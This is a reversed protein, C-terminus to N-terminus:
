FDLKSFSIQSNSPSFHLVFTENRTAMTVRNKRIRAQRDFCFM